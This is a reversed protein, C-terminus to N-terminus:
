EFDYTDLFNHKTGDDDKYGIIAGMNVNYSSKFINFEVNENKEKLLKILNKIELRKSDSEFDSRAGNKELNETFRCACRIFELENYKAWQIIDDERIYYLPRILEMGEFNTSHLKPMMTKYEGGYLMSLLITEIVDDYHHGLAIKNCGLSKAISYLCGRRMRACLYCPSGGGTNDVVSFIDSDFIEIPIEIEKANKIIRDLNEKNYGPNMVVYRAEFPTNSYKQLQQICKAMLFSDKGGSICVCVKDGTNILEYEKLAKTFKSWLYKRYRKIISQTAIESKTM